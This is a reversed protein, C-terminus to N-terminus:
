SVGVWVAARGQELNEATSVDDILHRDRRTQQESPDIKKGKKGKEGPGCDLESPREAQREHCFM